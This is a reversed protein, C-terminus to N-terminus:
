QQAEIKSGDEFLIVEPVFSFQIKEKPTSALKTDEDIFQNIDIGGKYVFSKRAKIAEDSSLRVQKIPDGFIDKFSWPPAFSVTVTLPVEWEVM